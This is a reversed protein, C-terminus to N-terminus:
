IVVGRSQSEAGPIEMPRGADQAAEERMARVALGEALGLCRCDQIWFLIRVFRVVGRQRLADRTEKHRERRSPERAEEADIGRRQRVVRM